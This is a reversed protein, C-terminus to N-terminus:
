RYESGFGNAGHTFISFSYQDITVPGILGSRLLGSHIHYHETSNSWTFTRGGNANLDGIIRNPWTNAVEITMTNKGPKLLGTIDLRFPSKWLTGIERSNLYVRATAKIEGLNLSIRENPDIFDNMITFEKTYQAKGSYYKIGEEPRDTWSVLSDFTVLGPGGWNQDFYVQWPGAIPISKQVTRIKSEMSVAKRFPRPIVPKRFVVFVSAKSELYVPIETSLINQNFPVNKDISGTEPHWFEPIKNTVRFHCTAMVAHSEQNSVFYIDTTGSARHIFDLRSSTDTSIYKFDPILMEDLVEKIPKGYIVKGKDLTHNLVGERNSDGWIEKALRKVEIDCQPYGTLGPSSAPKPGYIIAGEQVLERIRKLLDPTIRLKDPLVLLSYSAGNPLVLKGNKVTLRNLVTNRDCGDFRYGKPLYTLVNNKYAINLDNQADESYFLLVDAVFRGQQLLYQARQLYKFYGSAHDWWPMKRNMAIGWPNMQWGPVTEDPQHTYSHFRLLNIGRCFIQDGYAKLDDPTIQWDGAPSTFSEASIVPKGYIHGSSVADMFSGNLKFPQVWFETMPIDVRSSYNIPDKLAQQAGSAESELRLGDQHCLKALEGYYNEAILDSITRRFDWLFRYTIDTNEVLEGSIVALYPYISYGRRKNFEQPFDPTWNLNLCEWSDTFISKITNGIYKERSDFLVKKMGQYYQRTAVASLKDSELGTSGPPGENRKGTLTYGVRLITWRGTPVDWTLTGDKNMYQTLDIIDDLNVPVKTDNLIKPPNIKERVQYGALANLENLAPQFRNIDENFQIEPIRLIDQFGGKIIIRYFRGKVAQYDFSQYDNQIITDLIKNFTKNDQSVALEFNNVGNWYPWTRKIFMSHTELSQNFEFLLKVEGGDALIRAETLADGDCILEKNLIEKNCSIEKIISAILDNTDRDNSPYALIRVDKYYNEITGPTDIIADFKQPGNLQLKKYTLKKMSQDPTVWPGGSTAWGGCNQFSLEVGLRKAETFAHNVLNQWQTSGYIVPGPAAQGKLNFLTAGHIGQLAMAELDRTIGEMSINGNLWHWWVGPRTSDPPNVFGNKIDSFSQNGSCSAILGM